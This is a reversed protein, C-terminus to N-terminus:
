TIPAGGNDAVIQNYQSLINSDRLAMEVLSYDYVCTDTWCDTNSSRTVIGLDHNEARTRIVAINSRIQDINTQIRAINSEMNIMLSIIKAYIPSYDIVAATIGVSLNAINVNPDTNSITGFAIVNARVNADQAASTLYATGGGAAQTFVWYTNGTNGNAIVPM